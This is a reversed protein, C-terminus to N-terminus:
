TLTPERRGGMYTKSIFGLHDPKTVLARIWQAKEGVGKLSHKLSLLLPHNYTFWHLTSVFIKILLLFRKCVLHSILLM